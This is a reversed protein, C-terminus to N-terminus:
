GEECKPTNKNLIEQSADTEDTFNPELLTQTQRIVQQEKEYYSPKSKVCM